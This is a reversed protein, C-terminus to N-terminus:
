TGVVVNQANCPHRHLDDRDESAVKRWIADEKWTPLDKERAADDDKKKTLEDVRFKIIFKAASLPM